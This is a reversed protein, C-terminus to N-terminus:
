IADMCRGAVTLALCAAAEAPASRPMASNMAAETDKAQMFVSAFNAASPSCVTSTVQPRYKKESTNRAMSTRRSGLLRGSADARGRKWIPRDASSSPTVSSNKAEMGCMGSTSATAMPWVVGSITVASAPGSSPSVTPALRQAATHTPNMPTITIMLGPKPAISQGARTMNTAAVSM